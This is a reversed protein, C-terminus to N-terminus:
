GASGLERLLGVLQAVDFPKALVPRGTSNAAEWIPDGPASGSIFVVREALLPVMERMHSWLSVGGRDHLNLDLLIGDPMASVVDNLLQEEPLSNPDLEKVEAGTRRLLRSIAVRVAGDDDILLLRVGALAQPEMEPAVRSLIPRATPVRVEFSAGGLGSRGGYRAEGGLQEASWAVSSLGLGAAGGGSGGQWLPQFVLDAVEPAVGTGDDEVRLLVAERGGRLQDLEVTVVVRSRAHRAANRLLNSVIRIWFSARGAVQVDAPLQARFRVDPLVLESLRDNVTSETLARPDFVVEPSLAQGGVTAVVDQLMRGLTESMRTVRQIEDAPVQGMEAEVRALTAWGHLVQMDNALDHVLEGAVKGFETLPHRETSHQQASDETM